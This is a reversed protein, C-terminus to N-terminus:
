RATVATADHQVNRQPGHRDSAGGLTRYYGKVVMSVSRVVTGKAPAGVCRAEAAPPSLLSIDTSITTRRANARRKQKILFM